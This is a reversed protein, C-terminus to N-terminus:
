NEFSQQIDQEIRKPKTGKTKFIYEIFFSLFIMLFLGIATALMVILRKNPKIPYPSSMPPQLILINEISDKKFELNEIEQEANKIKKDFEALKQKESELTIEYNNLQNKYENALSMNQQITNSYILSAMIENADKTKSLFKQQDRILSDTNRTISEIDSRLDKIRKEINGINMKISNQSKLLKERETIELNLQLELEQRQLKELQSYKEALLQNLYNLIQLGQEINSTEYSVKLANSKTPISTKFKIAEPIDQSDAMQALYKLIQSDFAGIDILSKINEPSDIYVRSNRNGKENSIELVGPELITEVSYIKAMNLSIIVAAVACIVTGGIILYKWKWIIRLLDILEIEDEPYAVANHMEDSKQNETM